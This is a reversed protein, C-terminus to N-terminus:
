QRKVTEEVVEELDEEDVVEELTAAACPGVHGMGCRRPMKVRKLFIITGIPFTATCRMDQSKM